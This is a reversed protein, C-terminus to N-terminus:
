FSLTPKFRSPEPTPHPQAPRNYFTASDGLTIRGGAENNIVGGHNDITSGVSTSVGGRVENDLTGRDRFVISAYENVVLSANNQVSGLVVVSLGDPITVVTGAPIDVECGAPLTNPFPAVPTSSWVTPDNWNGSAIASYSCSAASLLDSPSDSATRSSNVALSNPPASWLASVVLVGLILAATPGGPSATLLSL